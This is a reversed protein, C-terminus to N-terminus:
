IVRFSRLVQLGYKKPLAVGHTLLPGVEADYKLDEPGAQANGDGRTGELFWKCFSSRKAVLYCMACDRENISQSASVWVVENGKSDM